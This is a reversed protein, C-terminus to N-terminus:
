CCPPCHICTCAAVSPSRCSCSITSCACACSCRSPRTSSWSRDSFRHRRRARRDRLWHGIRRVAGVRAGRGDARLRARRPHRDGVPRAHAPRHRDADAQAFGPFLRARHWRCARAHLAHARFLREARCRGPVQSFAPWRSFSSHSFRRSCCRRCGSAADLLAETLHERIYTSGFAAIKRGM